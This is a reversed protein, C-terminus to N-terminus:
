NLGPLQWLVPDVNKYPAARFNHIELLDQFKKKLSTIEDELDCNRIKSEALQRSLYSVQTATFKRSSTFKLLIQSTLLALQHDDTACRMQMLMQM